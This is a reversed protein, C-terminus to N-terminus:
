GFLRGDTGQGSRRVPISVNMGDRTEGTWRLLGLRRLESMRKRITSYGYRKFEPLREVEGDTMGRGGHRQRVADLVQQQLRSLHPKLGDAARVSTEPDSRRHMTETTM